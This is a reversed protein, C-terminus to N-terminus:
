KKEAEIRGDNYIYVDVYKEFKIRKIKFGLFSMSGNITFPFAYYDNVSNPFPYAKDGDVVHVVIKNEIITAYHLVKYKKRPISITNDKSEDKNWRIQSGIWDFRASAIVNDAQFFIENNVIAVFYENDM